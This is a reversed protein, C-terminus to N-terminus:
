WGGGGGGGGGGGAGGGSFGSGSSDSPSSFSQGSATNFDGLSGVLYGANFASWNGGQYWGPPQTYIDNFQKAWDKELGFMMAYPLLKEFLKVKAEATKPNFQEAVPLKEAGQPSQLFKLRDAEALKIYDKLGLLADYAVVGSETRAPMIFSFGFIVVAALLIGALPALTLSSHIAGAGFGLIWALFFLVIAWIRYGNRVKKPNKIFYGDNFLKNALDDESKQMAKYMSTRHATSSKLENISARAGPRLQSDFIAQLIDTSGANSHPVQNLQLEYDKKSFLGKKPIEYITIYGSIAKEILMASVAKSRLEENLIYDSSMVDLDNPPEYEPIIVGRGKPDNGFQRWRRFMFVVALTPPLTVFALGLMLIIRHRKEENKIATSKPNFTGPKFALVTSLTQRPGLGDAKANVYTGNAASILTISCDQLVSGYRGAYCRRQDKLSGALQGAIHIDATVTNFTQDWQDGNIDWFFEDHDSYYSTVDQMDYNIKYITRGQVYYNPSGIKIVKNNNQDSSTFQYPKGTEDTISVNKLSLKHGKYSKPIARLIGHNQNYNPFTAVLTEQVHLTSDKEYNRDLYYEANFSEFSFDQTNQATAQRSSFAALLFVALLFLSLKKPTKYTIANKL